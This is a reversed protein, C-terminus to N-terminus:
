LDRFPAIHEAHKAYLKPDIGLQRAVEMDDATMQYSGRPEDYVTKSASSSSSSTGRGNEVDQAQAIRKSKDADPNVAFYAREFASETTVGQKELQAIIPKMDGYKDRFDPWTEIAKMVVEKTQRKEQEILRSELEKVRDEVTAGADTELLKELSEPNDQLKALVPAFKEYLQSQQNLLDYKDKKIRVDKNVPTGDSLLEDAQQEVSLADEDESDTQEDEDRTNELDETSEEDIQESASQEEQLQEEEQKLDQEKIEDAM